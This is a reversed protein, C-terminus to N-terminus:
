IGSVQRNIINVINCVCVIMCVSIYEKQGQGQGQSVINKIYREWRLKMGYFCLQKGAV